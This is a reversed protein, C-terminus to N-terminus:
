PKNNIYYKNNLYSSIYQYSQNILNIGFNDSYKFSLPKIITEKSSSNKKTKFFTNTLLFLTNSLLFIINIIFIARKLHKFINSKRKNTKRKNIIYIKFENKYHNLRSKNSKFKKLNNLSKNILKIQM